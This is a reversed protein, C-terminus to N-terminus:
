KVFSQLFVKFYKPHFRHLMTEDKMMMTLAEFSSHKKRYAKDNTLEDFTDSISLISAFTKINRGILRNPYGSGDHSEHHHLIADLIYPNLIRNKQVIDRSYKTHQHMAELEMFNLKSDKNKISDNIKKTGVDHLLGALGLQSLEKTELHLFHGLHIAYLSVHLSHYALSYDSSFYQMANKIYNTNEQILYLANNVIEQACNIDLVDEKSAMFKRFLNNNIEYLLELSNKFNHKDQKISRFLSRYTPAKKNQHKKSIYLYDKTQLMKYLKESLLTGEEIIIVYNNDRKIFIDFSLVEGISLSNIDLLEYNNGNINTQIIKM